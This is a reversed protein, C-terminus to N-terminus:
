YDVLLVLICELLIRVAQLLLRGPPTKVLCGAGLVLGGQSLAGGLGSGGWLGPGRSWAGGPVLCGRSWAGGQVLCGRTFLIM